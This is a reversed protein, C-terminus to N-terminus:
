ERNWLFPRKDVAVPSTPFPSAQNYGAEPGPGLPQQKDPLEWLWLGTGVPM